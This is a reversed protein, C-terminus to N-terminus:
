PTVICLIRKKCIKPLEDVRFPFLAVSATFARARAESNKILSNSFQIEAVDVARAGFLEM